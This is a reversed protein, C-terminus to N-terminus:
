LTIERLINNEYFFYCIFKIAFKTKKCIQITDNKIYWLGNVINKGADMKSLAQRVIILFNHHM